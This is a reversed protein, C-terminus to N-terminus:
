RAPPRPERRPLARRRSARLEDAFDDLFDRELRALVRLDVLTGADALPQRDRQELVDDRVGLPAREEGAFRDITGRTVSM